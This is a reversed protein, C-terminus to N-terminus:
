PQTEEAIIVAHDVLHVNQNNDYSMINIGPAFGKETYDNPLRIYKPGLVTIYNDNEDYLEVKVEIEIDRKAINHFLYKVEIKWVEKFENYYYNLSGNVLEVVDSVLTVGEFTLAEVESEQCGSFFGIILVFCLSFCLVKKRM